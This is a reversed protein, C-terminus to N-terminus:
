VGFKQWTHCSCDEKNDYWPLRSIKRSSIDWSDWDLGKSYILNFEVKEKFYLELLAFIAQNIPYYYAM